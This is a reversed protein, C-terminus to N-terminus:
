LDMLNAFISKKFKEETHEAFYKDKHAEMIKMESLNFHGEMDFIKINGSIIDELLQTAIANGIASHSDISKDLNINNGNNNHLLMLAVISLMKLFYKFFNRITEIQASKLTVDVSKWHEKGIILISGILQLEKIFGQIAHKKAQLEFSTNAGELYNKNHEQNRCLTEAKANLLNTELKADVM